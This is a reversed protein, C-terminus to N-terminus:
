VVEWESVFYFPSRKVSAEEADSRIIYVFLPIELYM